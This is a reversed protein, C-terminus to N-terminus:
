PATGGVPARAAAHRGVAGAAPPAAVHRAARDPHELRLTGYTARTSFRAGASPPTSPSVSSSAFARPGSSSRAARGPPSPRPSRPARGRRRAPRPAPARAQRGGLPAAAAPLRGHGARHPQEDDGPTASPRGPREREVCSRGRRPLQEAPDAVVQVAAARRCGARRRAAREVLAHRHHGPHPAARVHPRLSDLVRRQARQVGVEVRQRRSPRSPSATRGRPAAPRPRRPAAAREPRRRTTSSTRSNAASGAVPSRPLAATDRM